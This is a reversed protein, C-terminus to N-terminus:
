GFRNKRRRLEAFVEAPSAGDMGLAKQLAPDTSRLFINTAKEQAISSPVTPRGESDAQQAARLRERTAPNDREITLAFEYNEATYNHGCYILTQDPLAALKALSNWLVASDCEMPRGCGGIFLTDGTWVAGPHGSAPSLYFCVSTRTHGPTALVTVERNGFVLADGEAVCRDSRSVGSSDPAIVQCGTKKKLTAIGGTHDGHHHTVLVTTLTWGRQTLTDLVGGAESPDVVFARQQDYPVVYIYNDGCTLVVVSDAAAASPDTSM